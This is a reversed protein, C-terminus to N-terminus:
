YIFDNLIESAKQPDYGVLERKLNQINVPSKALSLLSTNDLSLSGSMNSPVQKIGEVVATLPDAEGIPHWPQEATNVFIPPVRHRLRSM